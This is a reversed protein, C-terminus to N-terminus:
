KCDFHNEVMSERPKRVLLAGLFPSYLKGGIIQNLALVVHSKQGSHPIPSFALLKILKKEYACALRSPM